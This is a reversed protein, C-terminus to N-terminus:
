DGFALGCIGNKIRLINYSVAFIRLEEGPTLISLTVDEIESMNCTGTPQYEDANLCFSYVHIPNTPINTHHQFPQIKTFFDGSRIQFRESGNFILQCENSIEFNEFAMPQIVYITKEYVPSEVIEGNSNTNIINPYTEFPHQVYGTLPVHWEELISDWEGPLRDITPISQKKKCVWILEKVPHNFHLQIEQELDPVLVHQGSYQVQTILFEQTQKTLKLREKEGIFIYDIFLKAKISQTSTTTIPAGTLENMLCHELSNFHIHIKISHHKLSVIPLAAGSFQCFWFHLPIYLRIKDNQIIQSPDSGIMQNYGIRKGTPCSLENWIHMWEGTQRDIRQGGIEFDVYKILKHGLWNAWTSSAVTPKDMEVELVCSQILDGNKAIICTVKRGFAIKGKIKQPISEMCFPTHRRFVIKFFTIQPHAILCEDEAGISALQIVGGGM